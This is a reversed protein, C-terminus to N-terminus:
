EGWILQASKARLLEVLEEDMFRYEDPIDLVHLAKYRVEDRYQAQLRSKHKQEMVLIIDAWRLDNVSITRKAGRVTGASRVNLGSERKFIAEGTPSRWQNMSCVFLVNKPAADAMEVEWARYPFFKGLQKARKLKASRFYLFRWQKEEHCARPPQQHTRGDHKRAQARRWDRTRQTM